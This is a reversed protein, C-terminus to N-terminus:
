EWERGARGPARVRGGGGRPRPGRFEFDCIACQAFTVRTGARKRELELERTEVEKKKKGKKKRTGGKESRDGTGLGWNEGIKSEQVKPSKLEKVRQSGSAAKRKEGRKKEGRSGRAKGRAKACDELFRFM